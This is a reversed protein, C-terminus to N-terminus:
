LLVQQDDLFLGFQNVLVPCPFTASKLYQIERTFSCRQVAKIWVLEAYNM